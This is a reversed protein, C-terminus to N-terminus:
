AYEDHEASDKGPDQDLWWVVEFILVNPEYEGTLDDYGQDHNWSLAVQAIPEDFEKAFAVPTQDLHTFSAYGPM